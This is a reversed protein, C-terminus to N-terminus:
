SQVQGLASTLSSQAAARRVRVRQTASSSLPPGLQLSTGSSQPPRHARGEDLAAARGSGSHHGRSVPPPPPPPTFDRRRRGHGSTSPSRHRPSDASSRQHRDPQESTTTDRHKVGAPQTKMVYDDMKRPRRRVRSPRQNSGPVAGAPVIASTEPQAPVPQNGLPRGISGAGVGSNLEHHFRSPPDVTDNDGDGSHGSAGHEAPVVDRDDNYEHCDADATPQDFVIIKVTKLTTSWPTTM